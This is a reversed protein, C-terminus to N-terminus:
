EDSGSQTTGTTGTTGTAGTAGGAPAPAPAKGTAALRAVASRQKLRLVMRESVRLVYRPEPTRQVYSVHVDTAIVLDIPAGATAVIVGEHKPLVSSRLLPGGALFPVFRDAPLVLSGPSPSHAAEYLEHGLMCGFPGYQGHSELADIAAVVATVLKEGIDGQSRDVPYTEDTADRLGDNQQGGQVRYIVPTVVPLPPQPPRQGLRRPNPPTPYDPDGPNIMPPTGQDDPQGRMVIADELRGIVVGARSVM